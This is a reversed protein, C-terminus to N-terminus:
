RKLFRRTVGERKRTARVTSDMVMRVLGPALQNVLYILKGSIGPIILFRNRKVGHVMAAAVADASMLKANGSIAFTEPPKTRNEQELQPTDTDPPCLVSVRIGEPRLENRLAQSFGIIGFKSASYATYGYTGVFGAISSVNVIHGGDKMSPLVSRTVAITGVLNTQITKLMVSLDMQHFHDPYSMGACNILTDPPGAQTVADGIVKTIEDPSSIDLPLISCQEGLESRAQELRAQNRAFLVVNGGESIVRRAIAFGIGSSGGTIYVTGWHIKGM